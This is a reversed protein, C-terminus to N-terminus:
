TAGVGGGKVIVLAAVSGSGGSEMGCRQGRWAWAGGREREREREVEVHRGGRQGGGRREGKFCLRDFKRGQATIKGREVGVSRWLRRGRRRELRLGVGGSVPAGEGEVGAVAEAGGGGSQGRV